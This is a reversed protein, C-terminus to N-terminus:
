LEFYEEVDPIEQHGRLGVLGVFGDGKQFLSLANAFERLQASTRAHLDICPRAVIAFSREKATSPHPLIVCPNLGVPGYILQIRRDPPGYALDAIFHNSISQLEQLM